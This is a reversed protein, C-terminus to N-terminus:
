TCSRIIHLEALLGAIRPALHRLRKPKCGNGARRRLRHSCMM